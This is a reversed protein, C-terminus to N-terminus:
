YDSGRLSVRNSEHRNQYFEQPNYRLEPPLPEREPPATQVRRAKRAPETYPKQGM